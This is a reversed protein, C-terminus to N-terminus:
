LRPRSCRAHVWWENSSRFIGCMALVFCSMFLCCVGSSTLSGYWGALLAHLLISSPKLLCYLPTPLPLPLLLCAALSTSFIGNAYLAPLTASSGYLSFGACVSMFEVNSLLVGSPVPLSIPRRSTTLTLCGPLYYPCHDRHATSSALLLGRCSRPDVGRVYMDRSLDPRWGPAGSATIIPTSQLSFSM